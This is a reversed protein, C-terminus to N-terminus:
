RKQFFRAILWGATASFATNFTGWAIDVVVVAESWGHLTAMNTLDYTAYAFFGFLAGYGAVSQWSTARTSASVFLLVGVIYMVYFLVAPVLHFELMGGIRNNYFDHAVGQLWAIDLTAMIIFTALYLISYRKM